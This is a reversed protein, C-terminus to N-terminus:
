AAAEAATLLEFMVEPFRRRHAIWHRAGGNVLRIADAAVLPDRFRRLANHFNMRGPKLGLFRHSQCFAAYVESATAWEPLPDNM